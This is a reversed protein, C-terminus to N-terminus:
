RLYTNQVTGMSWGARLHVATNSPGLTTGSSCYSAAGKRASHTGIDCSNLGYDNLIDRLEESGLFKSM